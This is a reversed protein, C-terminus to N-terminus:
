QLSFDTVGMREHGADIQVVLRLTLPVNPTVAFTKTITNIVEAQLEPISSQATDFVGQNTGLNNNNIDVLTTEVGGQVAIVRVYDADDWGGSGGVRPGPNYFIGSFTTTADDGIAINSWTFTVPLDHGEGNTDEFALFNSHADSLTEFESGAYTVTGPCHSELTSSSPAVAAGQKYNSSESNGNLCLYDQEGDSFLLSPDGNADTLTIQDMTSFDETWTSQHSDCLCTCADADNVWCRHQSATSASGHSVVVIDPHGHSVVVECTIGCTASAVSFLALALVLKMMATDLLTSLTPSDGFFLPPVSFFEGPCIAM